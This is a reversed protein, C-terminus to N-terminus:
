KVMIAVLTLAAALAIAAGSVIFWTQYILESRDPPQFRNREGQAM